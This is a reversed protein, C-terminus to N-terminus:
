PSKMAQLQAQVKGALDPVNAETFRPKPPFFQSLLSMIEYKAATGEIIIM